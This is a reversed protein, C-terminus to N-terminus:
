SVRGDIGAAPGIARTGAVLNVSPSNDFISEGELQARLGYRWRRTGASASVASKRYSYFRIAARERILLYNFIICGRYRHNQLISGPRECALGARESDAVNM